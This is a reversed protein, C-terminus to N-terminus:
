GATKGRQLLSWVASETTSYTTLGHEKRYAKVATVTNSDYRGTM